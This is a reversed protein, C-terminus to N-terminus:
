GFHESQWLFEKKQESVKISIGFAAERMAVAMDILARGGETIVLKRSSREFILIGLQEELASIQRSLTPQSQKLLESAASFSGSEYVALLTKIQNWDFSVDRWEM